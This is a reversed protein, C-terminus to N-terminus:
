CTPRELGDSVGLRSELAGLGRHIAETDVASIRKLFEAEYSKALAILEGYVKRGAPSLTLHETRRDAPDPARKLWGRKELSAVARSVKTKHMSSHNVIDTATATGFQGLTAFARWEPRTMGHRSRYIQSFERSVLDALRNLRYPLFTELALVGGEQAEGSFKEDM